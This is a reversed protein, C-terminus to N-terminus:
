HLEFNGEKKLLRTARSRDRLRQVESEAEAFQQLMSALRGQTDPSAANGNSGDAAASMSDAASATAGEERKISMSRGLSKSRKISPQRAMHHTGKNEAELKRLYTDMDMRGVDQKNGAFLTGKCRHLASSGDMDPLFHSPPAKGSQQRQFRIQPRAKSPPAKPHPSAPSDSDAHSLSGSSCHTPETSPAHPAVLDEVGELSGQNPATGRAARGKAVLLMQSDQQLSGSATPTSFLDNDSASPQDVPFSRSSLAARSSPIADQLGSGSQQAEAAGNTGSIQGQKHGSPSTAHPQELRNGVTLTSSASREVANPASM